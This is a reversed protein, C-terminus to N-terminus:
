NLHKECFPRFTNLAYNFREEPNSIDGKFRIAKPVMFSYLFKGGAMNEIQKLSKKDITKIISEIWIYQENQLMSKDWNLAENNKLIIDSNYLGNLSEFANNFVAESGQDAYIKVSKSIFICHPFTELLRLKCSIYNAMQQWIVEHGNAKFEQNIWAYFDRRQKISKYEEPRNNILNYANAQQWVLTNQRRDSSLWDSASLEKKLTSKQFQKINKWEKAQISISFGFVLVFLVIRM